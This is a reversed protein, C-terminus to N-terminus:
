SSRSDVAERLIGAHADSLIEDRVYDNLTYLVQAPKRMVCCPRRAVPPLLGEFRIGGILLEGEIIPHDLNAVTGILGEIQSPTFSFGAERMGRGHEDFWVEGDENIMIETIRPNAIADLTAAGLQRRLLEDLRREQLQHVTSM